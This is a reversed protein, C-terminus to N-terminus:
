ILSDMDECWSSDSLKGYRFLMSYRGSIGVDFLINRNLLKLHSLLMTVKLLLTVLIHYIPQRFYWSGIIFIVTFLVILQKGREYRGSSTQDKQSIKEFELYDLKHVQIVISSYQLYLTQWLTSNRSLTTIPIGTSAVEDEVDKISDMLKRVPESTKLWPLKGGLCPHQWPDKKGRSSIRSRALM